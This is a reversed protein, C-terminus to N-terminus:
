LTCKGDAFTASYGLEDLRGISILTYGVEPSYLVKTLRLKSVDVGNPVEIIMEGIGVANFLQKNAATFSRPPITSLTNFLNKFPSFHCTSGSDYLEITHKNKRYGDHVEATIEEESDSTNGGTTNEPTTWDPNDWTAADNGVAFFLNNDDYM